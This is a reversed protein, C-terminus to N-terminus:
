AAERGELPRLNALWFRTARPSRLRVLELHAYEPQAVLLPYERRRRKYTQLAWLIISDRSFFAMRLSERNGGWLEERTLSRRLTRWIVRAMVLPLSYDLWVLVEARSWVLDRVRSYNGDVAWAPGALAEAVRARFLDLPTETWGPGWNIADLEIHPIGLTTAIKGALTTKGSGSTGIVVYRQAM